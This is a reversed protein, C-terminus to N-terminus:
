REWMRERGTYGVSPIGVLRNYDDKWVAEGYNRMERRRARERELEAGEVEAFVREIGGRVPDVYRLYQLLSDNLPWYVARFTRRCRGCKAERMEQVPLKVTASCRPCPLRDGGAVEMLLDYGDAIRVADDDRTFRPAFTSRRIKREVQFAQRAASWRLRLQRDFEVALQRDFWGPVRM